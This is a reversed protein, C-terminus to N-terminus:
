QGLWSTLLSPGLLPWEVRPASVFSLLRPRSRAHHTGSSLVPGAADFGGLNSSDVDRAM